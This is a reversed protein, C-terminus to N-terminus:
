RRCNCVKRGDCWGGRFGKALCHLVCLRENGILDCTIRPEMDIEDEEFVQSATAFAIIAAFFLFINLFRM